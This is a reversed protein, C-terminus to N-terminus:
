GIWRLTKADNRKSGAYCVMRDDRLTVASPKTRTAAVSRRSAVVTADAGDCVECTEVRNASEFVGASDLSGDFWWPLRWSLFCIRSSHLLM